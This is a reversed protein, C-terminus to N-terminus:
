TGELVPTRNSGAGPGVVMRLSGGSPGSPQRMGIIWSNGSRTVRVPLAATASIPGSPPLMCFTPTGGIPPLTGLSITLVYDGAPLVLNATPSTPTDGGCATAM